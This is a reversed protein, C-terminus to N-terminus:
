EGTLKRRVSVFSRVCLGVFVACLIAMVSQAAAAAPRAIQQGGLMQFFKLIGSVSGLFGLLGVVAAGHMAHKRRREDRALLGLILLVFGFLAPILATISARGSAFYGGLGLVILAAAFGITTSAM